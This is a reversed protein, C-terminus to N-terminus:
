DFAIGLLSVDDPFHGPGNIKQVYHIIRDIELRPSPMEMQKIVEELDLLLGEQNFVEYLGDSFVYLKGLAHVAQRGCEYTATPMGGIVLGQTRLRYTQFSDATEGSVLIAPPHGGSSYLIERNKQDYVGYWMTFFMNRHQEMQFRQNLAALVQAPQLFDTDPLAQSRLLNAITISLLAAGVGHGCVDLLYIALHRHDLWHYGFSDGGLEASPIFRWDTQIHKEQIRQPLISRVYEAADELDRRMAKQSEELARYAENRQTLSLYAKSHYRIRAVLEAQEPLKVMYDNVGLAFADAKVKADEEASLVIMPVHRTAANARFYKVLMLGDVEPMVLDQLIVTPHVEEAMQIASTPDRCYCLEVDKQDALMRRIREAIMEQDDILLVKILDSDRKNM